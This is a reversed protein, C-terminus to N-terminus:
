SIREIFAKVAEASIKIPKNIRQAEKRFLFEVLEIKDKLHFDIFKM